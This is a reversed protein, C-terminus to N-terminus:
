CRTRPRCVCAAASARRPRRSSRARCSNSVWGLGGHRPLWARAAATFAAFQVRTPSRSRSASRSQQRHHRARRRWRAAVARPTWAAALRVDEIGGNIRYTTTMPVSDGGNIIQTTNFSTTSTRDLLSSASLSVVFNTGSRCRASCSRTARRRRESRVRRCDVRHPVGAGDPLVPDAVRFGGITAPNIPSFPDMEGLAGGTGQARTSFQGRRSASGRGASTRSRAARRARAGRAGTGRRAHPCARGLRARTSNTRRTMM